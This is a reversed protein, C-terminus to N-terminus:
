NFEQLTENLIKDFLQRKEPNLNEIMTYFDDLFGTESGIAAFLFFLLLKFKEILEPYTINRNSLIIVENLIYNEHAIANRLEYDIYLEFIKKYSTGNLDDFVGTSILFDYFSLPRAEEIKEKIDKNYNQAFLCMDRTINELYKNLIEYITRYLNLAIWYAIKANKNEYEGSVALLNDLFLSRNTFINKTNTDKNNTSKLIDKSRISQIFKNLEEKIRIYEEYDKVKKGLFEREEFLSILNAKYEIISKLLDINASKEGRNQLEKLKKKYDELDEM